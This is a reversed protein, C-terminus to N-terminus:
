PVLMLCCGLLLLLLVKEKQTRAGTQAVRAQQCTDFHSWCHEPDLGFHDQWTSWIDLWDSPPWRVPVWASPLHIGCSKQACSIQTGAAPIGGASCSFAFVRFGSFPTFPPFALCSFPFFRFRSFPSFAFVAFVRFRCVRSFACLLFATKQLFRFFVNCDIIASAILCLRVSIPFACFSPFAFVRFRCFTNEHKRTTQNQVSATWEAASQVRLNDCSQAYTVYIYRLLGNRLWKFVFTIVAKPVHLNHVSPTWETASQVCLIDCSQSAEPM